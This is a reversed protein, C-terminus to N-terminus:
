VDCKEDITTSYNGGCLAVGHVTADSGKHYGITGTWWEDIFEFDIYSSSDLQGTIGGYGWIRVLLFAALCFKTNTGSGNVSTSSCGAADRGDVVKNYIAIPFITGNTKLVDFADTLSKGHAGTNSDCGTQAGSQEPNCDTPRDDDSLTISGPFGNLFWDSLMTDGNPNSNGNYDLFGWNGTGMGCTTGGRQFYERHVVHGAQYVPHDAAPKGWTSDDGAMHANWEKIHEDQDCIGVPRMGFLVDVTGWEATSSSYPQID